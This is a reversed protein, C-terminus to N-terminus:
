LQAWLLGQTSDHCRAKSATWCQGRRARSTRHEAAHASSQSSFILSELLLSDNGVASDHATSGEIRVQEDGKGAVAAMKMTRSRDMSARDQVASCSCVAMAGRPTDPM